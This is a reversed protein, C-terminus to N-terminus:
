QVVHQLEPCLPNPLDMQFHYDICLADFDVSGLRLFLFDFQESLITANVYNRMIRPSDGNFTAM